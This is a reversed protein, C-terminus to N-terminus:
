VSHKSIVSMIDEVKIPKSLFDSMGALLCQHKDEPLVNATMAVIIPNGCFKNSFIEKTATIGDMRPMQMDMFILSYEKEKAMELAEIGDNAIDTQYGLKKFMLMAVKQNIKNDEVLLIQHPYENSFGHSKMMKKTDEFLEKSSEKLKFNAVFTSGVGEKSEVSINGDMLKVLSACISLGLGTGGYERTITTDAQEFAKFLRSQNEKSIGIGFDQVSLKIPIMNQQIEGALSVNVKVIGGDQSFKSANSLLNVLIQAVRTIDGDVFNPIKEDIMAEIKVSKNDNANEVLSVSDQICKRLDFTLEELRMKGAEVKSFDLIDNVITLLNNGSTQITSIMDMQEENLETESLLSLMGIVGNMPTRIEHSMNALFESKAKAFSEAKDKAEILLRNYEYDKTYDWNIGVVKVPIGKLDRIIEAKSKIYKKTGKPTIIRYIHEFKEEHSISYDFNKSVEERDEPHILNLWFKKNGNFSFDDIEYLNFMSKDWVLNQDIPYFNWLGIGTESLIMNTKIEAERKQHDLREISILEGLFDLLTQFRQVFDECYGKKNGGLVLIAVFSNKNFIPFAVYSKKGEDLHNHVIRERSVIVDGLNDNLFESLESNGIFENKINDWDESVGITSLMKISLSTTDVSVLHGYSSNSLGLCQTVVYNYLEDIDKNLEIYKQRLDSITQEILEREKYLTVDQFTGALKKIEGKENKIGHGVARVWKKNGEMDYFEFVDDYSGGETSIRDLHALLRPQEHQAYCAVGDIKKTPTGVPIKYINYVQDSWFVFNTELDLEWGGTQSIEQISKSQEKQKELEVSKINLELINVVNQALVKLTEIQYPSLKKPEHDIVCLTGIRNGSPTILPAGAYFRVYPEGTNFPNDKFREDKNADEVIFVDDGMIAHGCYSIDRPTEKVDLGHASKFWQRNRDVLSVLCIKSDCIKAALATIDDFIEESDTDLVKYNYLEQLRELDNPPIPAKKM